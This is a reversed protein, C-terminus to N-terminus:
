KGKKIPIERTQLLKQRITEDAKQIVEANVKAGYFETFEFPEGIKIYNRKFLKSKGYIYITQVPVKGKLALLAAGGKIPLLPANTKNRIGEPFILIREGNKLAKILGIITAADPNDRDIPVGGLTRLFWSVPKSSFSERKTLVKTKGKFQMAVIFADANSLHNSVVVCPGKCINEKGIVKFPFFIHMFVTVIGRIIYFM